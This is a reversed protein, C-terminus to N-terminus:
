DGAPSDPGPRRDTTDPQGGPSGSGGVRVKRGHDDGGSIGDTGQSGGAVGGSQAPADDPAGTTPRDERTM